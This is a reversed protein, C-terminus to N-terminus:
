TADRFSIHSSIIGIHDAGDNGVFSSVSTIWGVFFSLGMSDWGGLNQFVTFVKKASTHPSLYAVPIIVAFFGVIYLILMLAEIRPLLRGLYTNIFVGFLAIAYFLLTAQWLKPDYDEYNLIILGQLLSACTYCVEAVFAQWSIVTLWGALYSLFKRCWPPSLIAVWNFPGGALPIRIRFLCQLIQILRQFALECQRWRLWLLQKSHPEVGLRWFDMFLVRQDVM